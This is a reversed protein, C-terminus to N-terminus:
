YYREFQVQNMDRTVTMLLAPGSLRAHWHTTVTVTVGLGLRPGTRGSESESSVLCQSPILASEFEQRDGSVPM